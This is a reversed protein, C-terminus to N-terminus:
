LLEDEVLKLVKSYGLILDGMQRRYLDKDFREKTTKDMLRLSDPTIEDALIIKNKEDKGFELKFDILTINIKNFLGMLLENIRLAYKIIQNLERNNLFKFALIQRESIVPDTDSKHSFEVLPPQFHLGSKIGYRTELTWQSYNRVIIELPIIKVKKCLHNRNDIKQIFHTSIKNKALYQYILSSFQCNIIGKTKFIIPKKNNFATVDDTYEIVVTAADKNWVIKSKGRILQKM